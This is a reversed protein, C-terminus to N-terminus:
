GVDTIRRFTVPTTVIPDPGPPGARFGVSCSHTGHGATAAAMLGAVFDVWRPDRSRGLMRIGFFAPGLTFATFSEDGPPPRQIAGTPRSLESWNIAFEFVTVIGLVVEFGFAIIRPRLDFLLRYIEKGSIMGCAEIFSFWAALGVTFASFIIRFSDTFAFQIRPVVITGDRGITPAV